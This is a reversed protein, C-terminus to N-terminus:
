CAYQGVKNVEECLLSGGCLGGVRYIEYLKETYGVVMANSRELANLSAIQM